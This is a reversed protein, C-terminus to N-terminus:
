FNTIFTNCMLFQVSNLQIVSVKSITIKPQESSRPTSDQFGEFEEPDQFHEFENDEDQFVIIPRVNTRM